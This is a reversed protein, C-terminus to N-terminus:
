RRPVDRASGQRRPSRRPRQARMLSAFLAGGLALMGWQPLMPVDADAADAAPEWQLSLAGSAGNFGDVALHYTTQAQAMFVIRSAGGGGADNDQAVLSLANVASGTYAALVTDFASGQTTFTVAGTQPATWRWWVSRAAPSGAHNPEGTEKTAGANAGTAIGSSAGIVAGNVFTDNRPRSLISQIWTQYPYVLNGGGGTGFTSVATPGGNFSSVFTNVAALRWRGGVDVFAPSGSDGGALSTEQSNGLSVGGLFNPAAGGDFDFIHVANRGSGDVDAEFADAANYGLRKVSANAGITAGADGQGSAGYGVLALRTGPSVPAFHLPYVPVGDPVDAALEILALDHQLNPNNFGVFGPHRFVAAAPIVHSLAAGFNLNFAVGAPSTGVVHAATLVHRRDVVAASYTGSGATLSGVGAWPSGTTNPDVRAAPTDPAAGAMIAQAQPLGALLLAIAGLWGYVPVNQM